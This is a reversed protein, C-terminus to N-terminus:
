LGSQIAVDSVGMYKWIRRLDQQAELIGIKRLFVLDGFPPPPWSRASSGFADPVSETGFHIFNPTLAFPRRMAVM